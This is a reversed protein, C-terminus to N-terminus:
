GESRGIHLLSLYAGLELPHLHGARVPDVDTWYIKVWGLLLVPRKKAHSPPHRCSTRKMYCAAAGLSRINAASRPLITGIGTKHRSCPSTKGVDPIGSEEGFPIPDRVPCPHRPPPPPPHPPVRTM